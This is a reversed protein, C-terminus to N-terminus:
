IPSLDPSCPPWDKIWRDALQSDLLKRNMLATHAPANDQQFVWSTKSSSSRTGYLCQVEESQKFLKSGDIILFPLVCQNYEDAGVGKMLQGKDNIFASRRGGGSVIIPDTTGFCSVGLYVHLKPSHKVQEVSPQQGQEYWCRPGEKHLCFMKSDTSLVKTWDFNIRAKAFKVRLARQKATLAQIKKAKGFKLNIERLNRTVTRASIDKGTSQKLSAAISKSSSHFSETAAAKLKPLDTDKLIRPRGSRPADALDQQKSIKGLVGRVVTRSAGAARAKEALKRGSLEPNLQHLHLVHGRLALRQQATLSQLILLTM